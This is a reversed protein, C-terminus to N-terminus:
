LAVNVILARRGPVDLIVNVLELVPSLHTIFTVTFSFLLLSGM